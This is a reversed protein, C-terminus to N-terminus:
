LPLQENTRERYADARLISLPREFDLPRRNPDWRRKQINGATPISHFVQRRLVTKRQTWDSGEQLEVPDPSLSRVPEPDAYNGRARDPEDGNM